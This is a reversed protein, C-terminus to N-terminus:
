ASRLELRNLTKIGVDIDTINFIRRLDPETM